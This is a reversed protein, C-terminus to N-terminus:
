RMIFMRDHDLKTSLAPITYSDNAKDSNQADEFYGTIADGDASPWDRTSGDAASPTILIVDATGSLGDTLTCAFPVSSFPCLDAMGTNTLNLTTATCTSCDIGNNELEDKAVAYYVVSAWGNNGCGNTLWDPLTPTGGSGWDVPLTDVADCPFRARNYGNPPGNSKGDARDAWPYDGTAIKYRQLLSMMERAVRQEVIPMLDANTIALVQDNFTVSTEAQIFPGGTQANNGGGTAELYNAACNQRPITTGTTACVATTSGRSQAGVPPGPAFLVAIAKSTLVTASSNHYVTLNGQTDSTIPQPNVNKYRFAGAIAYWLTEGSGDVPEPIDLTKWPVRGIAGGSCSGDDDLGNNNMDPCPLEGPRITLSGTVPTRSASWGMLAQRTQALAAGTEAARQNAISRSSAMSFVLFGAGLVLILVTLIIIQGRQFRARM